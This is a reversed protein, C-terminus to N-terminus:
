RTERRIADLVLKNVGSGYQIACKPAHALEEPLGLRAGVERLAVKRIGGAIKSDIPLGLAVSIIKEGLYPYFAEVGQSRSALTCSDLGRSHLRRLDADMLAQPRDQALYKHYGGLLEDAGMGLVAWRLGLDSARQAAWMVPLSIGLNMPDRTGIVSSLREVSEPITGRPICVKELDAGLARAAVEARRLDKCGEIGSSILVTEGYGICIRALVLSDIGGSFFVARPVPIQEIGWSLAAVIAEAAPQGGPAVPQFDAPLDFHEGRDFRIGQGTPVPRPQVHAAKRLAEPDTCCAIIDNRGLFLPRTGLADRALVLDGARFSVLAGFLHAHEPAKHSDGLLFDKLDSPLPVGPMFDDRLLCGPDPDGGVQAVACRVLTDPIRLRSAPGSAPAGDLFATATLDARHAALRVM